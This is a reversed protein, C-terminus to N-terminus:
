FYKENEVSGNWDYTIVKKINGNKGYVCVSQIERTKYDKTYYYHISYTPRGYTNTFLEYNIIGDYYFGIESPLQKNNRDHMKRHKIGYHHWMMKSYNSNEYFYIKSPMDLTSHYVNEITSDTVIPIKNSCMSYVYLNGNSNIKFKQNNNNNCCHIIKNEFLINKIFSLYKSIM